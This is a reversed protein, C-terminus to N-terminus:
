TIVEAILQAAARVAPSQSEQLPKESFLSRQASGSRHCRQSLFCPEKLCFVELCRFSDVGHEPPWAGKHGKKGGESVNGNEKQRM